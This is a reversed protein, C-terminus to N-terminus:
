NYNLAVYGGILKINEEKQSDCWRITVSSFDGTYTIYVLHKHQQHFFAQTTKNAQRFNVVAWHSLQKVITAYAGQDGFRDLHKALCIIFWLIELIIASCWTIIIIDRSERLIEIGWQQGNIYFDLYGKRQDAGPLVHPPLDPSVFNWSPLM